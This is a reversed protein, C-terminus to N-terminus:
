NCGCGGGGVGRGGACAERTFFVHERLALEQSDRDPRMTYDGLTGREWPKVSTCGSFLVVAQLALMTFLTTKM